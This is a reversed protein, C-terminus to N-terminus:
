LQNYMQSKIALLTTNGSKQSINELKKLITQDKTKFLTLWTHFQNLPAHIIPKNTNFHWIRQTENLYKETFNFVNYCCQLETFHGRFILNLAMEDSTYMASTHTRTLTEVHQKIRLERWRYPNILMVGLLIYYM